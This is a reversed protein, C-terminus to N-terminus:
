IIGKDFFIELKINKIEFIVHFQEDFNPYTGIRIRRNNDLFVERMIYFRHHNLLNRFFVDKFTMKSNILYNPENSKIELSNLFDFLLNSNIKIIIYYDSENFRNIFLEIRYFNKDLNKLEEFRYHFPHSFIKNIM